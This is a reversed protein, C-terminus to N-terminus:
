HTLQQLCHQFVEQSKHVAKAPDPVPLQTADADASVSNLQEQPGESDDFNAAAAQSLCDQIQAPDVQLEQHRRLPNGEGSPVSPAAAILAIGASSAYFLVVAFSFKLRHSRM